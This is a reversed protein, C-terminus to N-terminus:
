RARTTMRNFANWNLWTGRLISSVMCFKFQENFNLKYLLKSTNKEIIGKYSITIAHFEVTRVTCKKKVLDEMGPIDRYKAVKTAHDRELSRGSVVQVDIVFAKERNYVILDPKRMGARTKFRQEKLVKVNERGKFNECLMNVVRDHRHVRGGHTRQCQQIVHYNTESVMCGARCLREHDRGRTTRAKSPLVGARIHHYHIFDQGSIEQARDRVWSNSASDQRADKLDNTDVMDALVDKWYLSKMSKTVNAGINSLMKDCWELQRKIYISQKFIQTTNNEKNIFRTLRSKRILAVQQALNPIGLGGDKIDAYLYALPIDKPFYLWKRVFRRIELDLQELTGKRVRGLVLAHLHRPVVVMCLIKLRQQPKLPAKSVKELDAALSLANESKDSGTFHIGLYKWTDVVGIAKLLNGNVEFQSEEIVKVKKDVGSPVLSLTSSKDHNTELGFSALCTTLADISDQLGRKTTAVLIIDDAYAICNFSVGNLRYGVEAPLQKIARDIVANFLLPSIPDGQLVGQKVHLITNRNGYQLTTTSDTYLATIYDIFSKPCGLATITDLITKHTVSDFAKRLDLTAIHVERKSMRADSLITSIVSLNEVTGDCDIFARQCPDFAHLKKFRQAFIKHLQRVVVSTISLPRTNGASINGCGKPILVTRARKLEDDLSGNALVLNYFLARTSACVGRWNAVTIGEPGPASDLDLECAKVDDIDIPAWLPRLEASEVHEIPDFDTEIQEKEFINKWFSTVEEVPPMNVENNGGDLVRRAASGFDKRLLKQLISYEQRRRKKNSMNTNVVQGRYMIGRPPKADKFTTKLWKFLTGPELHVNDLVRRAYGILTQTMQLNNGELSTILRRINGALGDDIRSEVEDFVNEPNQTAAEEETDGREIFGRVLIQYAEQKRKSKIAELTRRPFVSRLHMNMNAEGRKAARAEEKAVLKVEEDSWRAKVRDVNIAANVEVPHKQRKHVGLGIKGKFPGGNCIECRLMGDRDQNSNAGSLPAPVDVTMRSGSPGGDNNHERENTTGIM